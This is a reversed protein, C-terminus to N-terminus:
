YYNWHIFMTVQYINTTYYNEQEITIFILLSKYITYITKKQQRNLLQISLESLISLDSSTLPGKKLLSLHM